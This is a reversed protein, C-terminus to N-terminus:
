GFTPLLRLRYRSRLCHAYSLAHVRRESRIVGRRVNADEDSDPGERQLRRKRKREEAEKVKRVAKTYKEVTPVQYSCSQSLLRWGNGSDWPSENPQLGAGLLSYITDFDVGAVHQPNFGPSTVIETIDLNSDRVPTASRAGRAQAGPPIGAWKTGTLLSTPRQRTGEALFHDPYPI